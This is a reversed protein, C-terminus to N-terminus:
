IQDFLGFVSMMFILTWFFIQGKKTQKFIKPNTRSSHYKLRCITKALFLWISLLKIVHAKGRLIKTNESKVVIVIWILFSFFGIRKRGQHFRIIPKGGSVSHTWAWDISKTDNFSNKVNFIAPGGISSFQLHANFSFVNSCNYGKSSSTGFASVLAGLGFFYPLILTDHNSIFHIIFLVWSSTSICLM